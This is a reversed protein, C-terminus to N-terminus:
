YSEEDESEEEEFDDEEFESSFAEPCCTPCPNDRADQCENCFKCHWMDNWYNNCQRCVRCHWCFLKPYPRDDCFSYFYEQNHLKLGSHSLADRVITADDMKRLEKRVISMVEVNDDDDNEKRHLFLRVEQAIRAITSDLMEGSPSVSDQRPKGKYCQQRAAHEFCANPVPNGDSEGFSSRGNEDVVRCFGYATLIKWVGESRGRSNYPGRTTFDEMTKCKLIAQRKSM